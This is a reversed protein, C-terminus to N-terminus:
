KPYGNKNQRTRQLKFCVGYSTRGNSLEFSASGARPIVPDVLALALVMHTYKLLSYVQLEERSIVKGKRWSVVDIRNGCTSSLYNMMVIPRPSYRGESEPKLAAERGGSYSEEDGRVTISFSEGLLAEKIPSLDVIVKVAYKSSDGSCADKSLVGTFSFSKKPVYRYLSHPSADGDGDLSALFDDLLGDQYLQYLYELPFEEDELIELLDFLKGENWLELLLELPFDADPDEYESMVYSCANYISWAEGTTQSFLNAMQELKGDPMMACIETWMPPYDSVTLDSLPSESEVSIPLCGEHRRQLEENTYLPLEFSKRKKKLARSLQNKRKYSLQEGSIRVGKPAYISVDLMSTDNGNTKAWFM